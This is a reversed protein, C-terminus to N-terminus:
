PRRGSDRVRRSLEDLEQRLRGLRRGLSILYVALAIWIVSYGLVLYRMPNM